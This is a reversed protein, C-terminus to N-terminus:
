GMAPFRCSPHSTAPVPFWSVTQINLCEWLFRPAVSLGFRRLGAGTRSGVLSLDPSIAELHVIVPIAQQRYTDLVDGSDQRGYIDGEAIKLLCPVIGSGGKVALEDAFKSDPNYPGEALICAQRQDRWDATVAVTGLLDAVYEAYGEGRDVLTVGHILRNERNLLDLLAAQVDAHKLAEEDRKLKEYANIRQQINPSKLALLLRATSSDQQAALGVCCGCSLLLILARM